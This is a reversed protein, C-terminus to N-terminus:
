VVLVVPLSEDLVEKIMFLGQLNFFHTSDMNAIEIRQIIWADEWLQKGEIKVYKHWM